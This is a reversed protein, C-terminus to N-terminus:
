ARMDATTIQALATKGVDGGLHLTLFGLFGSVDRRYAEVTKDSAGNLARLKELWAELLHLAQGSPAIM